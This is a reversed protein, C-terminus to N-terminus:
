PSQSPDGTLTASAVLLSQPAHTRRNILNFPILSFLAQTSVSSNESSLKRVAALHSRRRTQNVTV